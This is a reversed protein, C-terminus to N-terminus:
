LGSPSPPCLCTHVLHKPGNPTVTHPAPSLTAQGPWRAHVQAPRLCVQPLTFAPLGLVGRGKRGSVKQLVLM